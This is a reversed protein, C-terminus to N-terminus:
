GSLATRAVSRALRRSEADPELVPQGERDLVDLFPDCPGVAASTGSFALHLRGMSEAALPVGQPWVQAAAWGADRWDAALAVHVADVVDIGDTAYTGFSASCPLVAEESLTLSDSYFGKFSGMDVGLHGLDRTLAEFLLECSAWKSVELRKTDRDAVAQVYGPQGPLLRTPNGPDLPWELADLEIQHTERVEGCETPFAPLPGKALDYGDRWAVVFAAVDDAAEQMTSEAALRQPGAMAVVAAFASVPTM